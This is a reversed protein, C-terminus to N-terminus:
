SEELRLAASPSSTLHWILIRATEKKEGFYMAIM